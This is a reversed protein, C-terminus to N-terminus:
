QSTRFYEILIRFTLVIDLLNLENCTLEYFKSFVDKMLYLSVRLMANQEPLPFLLNSSFTITNFSYFTASNSFRYYSINQSLMEPMFTTCAGLTIHPILPYYLLMFYEFTAIIIRLSNFSFSYLHSTCLVESNMFLDSTQDSIPRLNSVQLHKLKTM